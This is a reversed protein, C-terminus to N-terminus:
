DENSKFKGKKDSKAVMVVLAGSALDVFVHLLMVLLLSQSLLFIGCFLISLSFIKVVNFWGQYLHSVAFAVAPILIAIFPGWTYMKTQELLYNVLFGRFIIEECIGASFALFTFPIYERWKQPLIEKMMATHADEEEEGEANYFVNYISDGVYILLLLGSLLLVVDNIIPYKFGLLEWSRGNLNWLTLIMLAGVWLMLGNSFYIHKKAPLRPMEIDTSSSPPKSMLSMIPMIVCIVFFVFHDFGNVEMYGLYPGFTCSNIKEYFDCVM